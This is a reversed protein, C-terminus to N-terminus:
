TLNSGSIRWRTSTVKIATAQGGSALTRSGTSGAAGVLVLTDATIAITLVGAGYDNDFTIATGISYPVNANSDITWTRATTDAAPHYIHKGADSLVTTYAASISNQPINRFGVECTENPLTVTRDATPEGAILTTEFADATTGEFVVGKDAGTITINDAFSQVGAWTNNGALSGYLTDFYTKLTAKINAWSVVKRVNSAASDIIPALDADVPTTKATTAAINSDEWKDTNLNTFNADGETFSLASGKGARTVIVSM